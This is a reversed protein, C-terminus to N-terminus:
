NEGTEVVEISEPDGIAQPEVLVASQEATRTIGAKLLTKFAPVPQIAVIRKSEADVYSFEILSELLRRREDSTAQEWMAPLDGLLEGVDDLEVQTTNQALRLQDDIAKLRTEYEDENLGGDAYGRVLRRRRDRLEELTPGESKVTLRAIHEKWDERLELSQFIEGVQGDISSAVFARGNTDCPWGHRERYMPQGSGNRDSHLRNRCRACLLRGSLVGRRMGVSAGRRVRRPVQVREFLEPTVLAEHQGPFEEGRYTVVGVHFRCKLLDRVAHTTFIRGSRTKFGQSNIWRAIEGNPRRAASMAFARRVVNAEVPVIRAVGGAEDTAYGFPVPGSNLGKEARQRQGKAVHVSLQDSFFEAVGGIVTLLLRGSPTSYDFNETVSVFGVGARGLRQLAQGQVRMNRAWRDLTHVIVTDFRDHEADDLLACLQPRKKIDDTHASVGEDAYIRELRYGNRECYREIERRQADLSHGQIQEETTPIVVGNPGM